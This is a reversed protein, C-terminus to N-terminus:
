SFINDQRTKLFDTTRSIEYQLEIKPAISSTSKCHGVKLMSMIIINCLLTM